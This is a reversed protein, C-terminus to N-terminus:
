VFGKDALVGSTGVQNLFKNRPCLFFTATCNQGVEFVDSSKSEGQSVSLHQFSASHRLARSVSAFM